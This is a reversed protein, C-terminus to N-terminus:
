LLAKVVMEPVLQTKYIEYANAALSKGKERDYYLELIAKALAASDGAQCLKMSAEDFIERVARTDATIVPVQCAVAEYIRNPIVLSAKASTGFVGLSLDSENLQRALEQYSTEPHFKVNDLQLHEAMRKIKEYKSNFRTTIRFDVNQYNELKKAAAIVIDVGHFPVIYGHWHVVFKQNNGEDRAPLPAFIEDDAGVLVRMFKSQDLGYQKVFYNIHENTDLLVKDALKCGLKDWFPFYFGAGGRDLATVNLSVFADFILKKRTLLRAFPVLTYAGMTVLLVDYQDQLRRHQRWLDLYKALGQKRTHCELVQVGNRQLGKKLVVIRPYDPIYNGFFCITM